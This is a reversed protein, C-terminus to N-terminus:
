AISVDKERGQFCTFLFAGLPIEAGWPAKRDSREPFDNAYIRWFFSAPYNLVALFSLHLISSFLVTTLRFKPPDFNQALIGAFFLPCWLRNPTAGALWFNSSRAM